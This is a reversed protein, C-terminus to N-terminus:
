IVYPNNKTGNGSRITLDSKLVVIPRIYGNVNSYEWPYQFMKVSSYGNTNNTTMGYWAWKSAGRNVFSRSGIWYSCNNGTGVCNASVTGYVDEILKIDDLYGDDGCGYSEANDIECNPPNEYYKATSNIVLTQNSYGVIRSGVTYTSNEYQKALENLYGVLNSYGTIGYLTVYNSSTYESITDITSDENIKLVRWLNLEQPKITQNTSYGTISKNTTFSATTPRMSIYDGVKVTKIRDVNELEDIITSTFEKSSKRNFSMTSLIAFMILVIIVVLGYLMTSIAFGKNNMKMM